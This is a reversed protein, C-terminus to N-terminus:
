GRMKALVEEVAAIEAETMRRGYFRTDKRPRGPHRPVFSIYGMNQEPRWRGSWTNNCTEQLRAIIGTDWVPRCAYDGDEMVHILVGSEQELYLM